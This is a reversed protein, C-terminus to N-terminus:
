GNSEEVDGITSRRCVGSQILMERLRGDQLHMVQGTNYPQAGNYDFTGTSTFTVYMVDPHETEPRQPLGVRRSTTLRFPSFGARDVRTAFTM